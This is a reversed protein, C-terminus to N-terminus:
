DEQEQLKKHSYKNVYPTNMYYEIYKPLVYKKIPKVLGLGVFISVEEDFDIRKAFGLTGIRPFLIDDKEPKARKILELHEEYSIYKEYADWNIPQFPRINAISIFRIGKEQYKPTKHTGDTILYSVDELRVWKWEKPIEPLKNENM